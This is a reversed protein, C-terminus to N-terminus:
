SGATTRGVPVELKSSSMRRVSDVVSGVGEAEAAGVPMQVVMWSSRHLIFGRM